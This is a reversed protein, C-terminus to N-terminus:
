GFVERFIFVFRAIAVIRMAVEMQKRACDSPL